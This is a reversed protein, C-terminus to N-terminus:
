AALPRRKPAMVVLATPEGDASRFLEARYGSPMTLEEARDGWTSRDGTALIQPASRYQEKPHWWVAMEALDLHERSRLRRRLMACLPAPDVAFGTAELKILLHALDIVNVAEIGISADDGNEPHRFFLKLPVEFATLVDDVRLACPTSVALLAPATAYILSEVSIRPTWGRAVAKRYIQDAGRGSGVLDPKQLATWLGAIAHPTVTESM